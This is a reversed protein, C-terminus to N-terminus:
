LSGEIIDCIYKMDGIDYRQDIPLPIIDKALKCEFENNKDELVNPWLIPVYIKNNILKERLYDANRRFFPYMFNMNSINLDLENHKGLREHLYNINETRRKIIMNYDLAGMISRTLDSMKAVEDDYFSEEAKKYENYFSSASYELRGFLHASRFNSRGKKLSNDLELNTALYAGDPVGFFKRCSYITDVGDVPMMFFAHTNDVIIRHFRKKLSVIKEDTLMGYYNVICVYEDDLIENDIIPLLKEDIHYYEVVAQAKKCINRLADCLFFPLYIKKIDKKEILYRLCNRASNLRICGVHWEEDVLDGFEFYGGIEKKTM